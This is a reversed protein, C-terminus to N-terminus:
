GMEALFQKTLKYELTLFDGDQQINVVGSGQNASNNELEEQLTPDEAAGEAAAVSDYLLFLSHNARDGDGASYTGGTREVREAPIYDNLPDTSSTVFQITRRELRQLVRNTSDTQGFRELRNNKADIAREVDDTTSLIATGQKVALTSGRNEFVKYNGYPETEEATDSIADVPTDVDFNGIIIFDSGGAFLTAYLANERNINLFDLIQLADVSRLIVNSMPNNNKLNFYVGYAAQTDVNNKPVWSIWEPRENSSDGTLGTCGALSGLVSGGAVGLLRRRGLTPDIEDRTMIVGAFTQVPM